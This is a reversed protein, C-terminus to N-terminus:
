FNSRVHGDITKRCAATRKKTSVPACYINNKRMYTSLSHVNVNLENAIEKRHLGKEILAIIRQHHIYVPSTKQIGLKKARSKVAYMSRDLRDSILTVPMKQYFDTIFRDEKETWRSNIYGVNNRRRLHNLRTYVAGKSRGLFEAAEQVKTDNEYVFYELYIDDDETWKKAM